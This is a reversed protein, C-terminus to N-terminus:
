IGGKSLFWKAAKTISADFEAAKKGQKHPRPKYDYGKGQMEKAERLEKAFVPYIQYEKSASVKELYKVCQDIDTKRYISAIRMPYGPAHDTNMKEAAIAYKLAEDFRCVGEYLEALHLSFFPERVDFLYKEAERKQAASSSKIWNEYYGISEERYAAGKMRYATAVALIDFPNKSKSYKQVIIEYLVYRPKYVIPYAENALGLGKMKEPYKGTWANRLVTYIVAEEHRSFRSLDYRGDETVISLGPDQRVSEPNVYEIQRRKNFVRDFIMSKPHKDRSKRM